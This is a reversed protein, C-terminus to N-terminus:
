GQRNITDSGKLCSSFYRSEGGACFSQGWMQRMCTSEESHLPFCRNGSFHCPHIPTLSQFALPLLFGAVGVGVPYQSLFWIPEFAFGLETNGWGSSRSARPHHVEFCAQVSTGADQRKSSCVFYAVSEQCVEQPGQSHLRPLCFWCRLVSCLSSPM